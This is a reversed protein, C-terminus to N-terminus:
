EREALNGTLPLDVARGCLRGLVADARPIEKTLASLREPLGTFSARQDVLARLTPTDGMAITSSNVMLM